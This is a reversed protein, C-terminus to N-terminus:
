ASLQSAQWYVLRALVFAAEFLNFVLATTYFAPELDPYPGLLVLILPIQIPLELLIWFFAAMAPSDRTQTRVVQRNEPRRLSLIIVAWVLVLFILSCIFWLSHERIGYRSLGVPLLAAVIVVLGITVVARIQGLQTVKIETRGTFSILAGFGVFVGAIEAIAL